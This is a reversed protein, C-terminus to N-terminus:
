LDGVETVGERTSEIVPLEQDCTFIASTLLNILNVASSPPVHSSGTISLYHPFCVLLDTPPPEM